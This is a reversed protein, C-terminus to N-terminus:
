GELVGAVIPIVLTVSGSVDQVVNVFKLCFLSKKLTCTTTTVLMCWMTNAYMSNLRLSQLYFQNKLWMTNLTVVASMINREADPQVSYM